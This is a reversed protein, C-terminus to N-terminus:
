SSYKQQKHLPMKRLRPRLMQHTRLTQPRTCQGTQGQQPWASMRASPHAHGHRKRSNTIGDTPKIFRDWSRSPRILWRHWRDWWRHAQEWRHWRNYQSESDSPFPISLNNCIKVQPRVQLCSLAPRMTPLPTAKPATLILCYKGPQRSLQPEWSGVGGRAQCTPDISHLTSFTDLNEWTACLYQPTPKHLVPSLLLDEESPCATGAKSTHILCPIHM